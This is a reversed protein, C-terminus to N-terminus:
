STLTISSMLLGVIDSYGIQSYEDESANYGSIMEKVKDKNAFTSTYISIASPDDLDVVGLKKLNTELDSDSYEPATEFLLAATEDSVAPLMVDFAGALQAETMAAMSAAIQEAYQTKIREAALQAFLETLEDDSMSFLYGSVEKESMGTTEAIGAIIMQRM